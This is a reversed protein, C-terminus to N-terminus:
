IKNNSICERGHENEKEKNTMPKLRNVKEKNTIPKLQNIACVEKIYFGSKIMTEIVKFIAM